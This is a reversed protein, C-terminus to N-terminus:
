RITPAPTIRRAAANVATASARVARGAIACPMAPRGPSGPATAPPSPCFATSITSAIVASDSAGPIAMMTVQKGNMTVTRDIRRWDMPRCCDGGFMSITLRAIKRVQNTISGTRRSAHCTAPAGRRSPVMVSPSANSRPIMGKAPNMCARVSGPVM